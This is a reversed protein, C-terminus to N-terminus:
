EKKEGSASGVSVSDGPLPLLLLLMYAVLYYGAGWFGCDWSAGLAWNYSSGPPTYANAYSAAFKADFGAVFAHGYVAVAMKPILLAAGLRVLKSSRGFVCLATGLTETASVAAAWMLPALSFPFGLDAVRSSLHPLDLVHHLCPGAMCAAIAVCCLRLAAFM